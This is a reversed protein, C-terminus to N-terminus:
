DGLIYDLIENAIDEQKQKSIQQFERDRYTMYRNNEFDSVDDYLLSVCEKVADRICEKTTVIIDGKIIAKHIEKQTM